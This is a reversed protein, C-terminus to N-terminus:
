NNLRLYDKAQNTHPSRRKCDIKCNVENCTYTLIIADNTPTNKVLHVNVIRNIEDAYCRMNLNSEEGTTFSMYGERLQSSLEFYNYPLIILGKTGRPKGM